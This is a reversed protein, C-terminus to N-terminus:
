HACTFCLLKVNENQYSQIFPKEFNRKFTSLNIVQHELITCGCVCNQHVACTCQVACQALVHVYFKKSLHRLFGRVICLFGRVIVRIGPLIVM